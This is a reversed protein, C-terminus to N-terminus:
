PIAVARSADDRGLAERLQGLAKEFSGLVTPTAKLLAKLHLPALESRTKVLGAHYAELSKMLDADVAEGATRRANFHELLERAEKEAQELQFRFGNIQQITEIESPPGQGVVRGGLIQARVEPPLDNIDVIKAKGNMRNQPVGM